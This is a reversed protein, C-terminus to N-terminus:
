RTADWKGSSDVHYKGIWKGAQMVGSSDFYYWDSGIKKWGTVM